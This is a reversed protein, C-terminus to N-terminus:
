APREWKGTEVWFGMPKDFQFGCRGVGGGRNKTISVVQGGSSDTWLIRGCDLVNLMAVGGQMNKWQPERGDKRDVDDRGTHGLVEICIGYRNALGKLKRMWSQHCRWTQAGGHLRMEKESMQVDMLHDVAVWSVQHRVAHKGIMSLIPGITREAPATLYLGSKQAGREAEIIHAEGFAGRELEDLECKLGSSRQLSIATTRLILEDLPMESNIYLGSFTTGLNWPFPDCIATGLNMLFSTKGLGTPAITYKLGPRAGKHIADWYRFGSRLGAIPDKRKQWDEMYMRTYEARSEPSIMGRTPDAKMTEHEAADMICSATDIGTRPDDDGIAQEIATIARHHADRMTRLQWRAIVRDGSETFDFQARGSNGLKFLEMIPTDTIKGRTADIVRDGHIPRSMEAADDADAIRCLARWIIAREPHSFHAPEVAALAFRRSPEQMVSGIIVAEDSYKM